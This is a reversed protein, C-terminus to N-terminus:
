VEKEIFCFNLEARGFYRPSSTQPRFPRGCGSRSGRERLSEYARLVCGYLPLSHRFSVNHKRTLALLSDGSKFPYLPLEDEPASKGDQPPEALSHSQHLRANHVVSKDVGKYFLNEDVACARIM